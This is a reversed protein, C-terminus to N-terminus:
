LEGSASWHEGDSAAAECRVRRSDLTCHGRALIARPVGGALGRGDFGAMAVATVQLELRGMPQCQGEQCRLSASGRELVGAFVLERSSLADAGWSAIFRLSLLGPLQQDLRLRGCGGSGPIAAPDAAAPGSSSIRCQSLHRQWRGFAELSDESSEKSAPLAQASAAAPISAVLSCAGWALITLASRVM